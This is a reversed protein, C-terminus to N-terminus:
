TKWDITRRNIVIQSVINNNEILKSAASSCAYIVPHKLFDIIKNYMLEFLKKM